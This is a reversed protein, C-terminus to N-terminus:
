AQTLTSPDTNSGRHIALLEKLLEIVQEQTLVLKNMQQILITEASRNQTLDNYMNVLGIAANELERKRAELPDEFNHTSFLDEVSVELEKAIQEIKKLTIESKGNEIYSLSQPSMNLLTALTIQKIGKQERIYKINRGILRSLNM